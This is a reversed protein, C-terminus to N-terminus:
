HEEHEPLAPQDGRARARPLKHRATDIGTALADSGSRTTETARERLEDVADGVTWDYPPEIEIPELADADDDGIVDALVGHPDHLATAGGFGCIVIEREETQIEGGSM